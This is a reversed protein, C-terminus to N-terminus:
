TRKRVGFVVLKEAVTPDYRCLDRSLAAVLCMPGQAGLAVSRAMEARYYRSGNPNIRTSIGDDIFGCLFFVKLTSNGIQLVKNHGIDIRKWVILGFVLTNKM